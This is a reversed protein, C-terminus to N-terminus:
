MKINDGWRRVSRGLPRTGERNMVLVRYEGRRDEMRAVHGSLRMIRSKIARNINPSTYWGHLEDSYLRRWDGTVKELNPRVKKRL